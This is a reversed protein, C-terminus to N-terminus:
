QTGSEASAQKRGRLELVRVSNWMSRLYGLTAVLALSFLLVAAGVVASGASKYWVHLLLAAGCFVATILYTALTVHLPQLGFMREIRDHFHDEDFLMPHRADLFRRLFAIGADLVPLGLAVLPIYLPVRGTSDVFGAVSLGAITFGLFYAGSDGLWRRAKPLNFPVFGLSAGALAGFLLAILEHGLDWAVYAMTGAILASIGAAVGDRGDILNMANTVLVVWFVTVVADLPGLAVKGGVPMTMEGIRYGGVYLGVAAVIQLGFKTKWNLDRFDDRAGVMFVLTGCVVLTLFERWDERMFERGQTSVIALVLPACIFAAVISFGGVRPVHAELRRSAKTPLRLIWTLPAAVAFAIVAVTLELSM